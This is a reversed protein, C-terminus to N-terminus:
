CGRAAWRGGRAGARGAEGRRAKVLKGDNGGEGTGGRMRDSMLAALNQMSVCVVAVRIRGGQMCTTNIENKGDRVIGLYLVRAKIDM